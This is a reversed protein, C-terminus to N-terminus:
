NKWYGIGNLAIETKKWADDSGKGLIYIQGCEEAVKQFQKQTESQTSKKRRKMEVFITPNTHLALDAAGPVYGEAKLYSILKTAEFKSLKSLLLNENPIKYYKIGMEKLKNVYHAQEVHETPIFEEVQNVIKM